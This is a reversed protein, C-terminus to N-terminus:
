VNFCFRVKIMDHVNFDLPLNVDTIKGMKEFTQEITEKTTYYDLGGIFITNSPDNPPPAGQDQTYRGKPRGRAEEIFLKRNGLFLGRMDIANQM